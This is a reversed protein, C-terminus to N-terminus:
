EAPQALREGQETGASEPEWSGPAPEAVYDSPALNKPAQIEAEPNTCITDLRHRWREAMERTADSGNPFVDTEGITMANHAYETLGIPRPWDGDQSVELRELGILLQFLEARRRNMTALESALADGMEHLVAVACRVRELEAPKLQTARAQELEEVANRKGDVQTKLIDPLVKVGAGQKAQEVRWRTIEKDLGEYKAVEAAAEQVIKEARRAAAELREIERTLNYVRENASRLAARTEVSMQM